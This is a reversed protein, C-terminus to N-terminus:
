TSCRCAAPEICLDRAAGLHDCAVRWRSSENNVPLVKPGLTYCAVLLTTSFAWAVSPPPCHSTRNFAPLMELSLTASLRVILQMMPTYMWSSKWICSKGDFYPHCMLELDSIPCNTSVFIKPLILIRWTHGFQWNSLTGLVVFYGFWRLSIEGTDGSCSWVVTETFPVRTEPLEPWRDEAWCHSTSECSVFLVSGTMALWRGVSVISGRLRGLGRVRSAKPLTGDSAGVPWWIQKDVLRNM